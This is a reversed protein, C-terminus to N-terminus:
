RGAGFGGIGEVVYDQPGVWERAQSQERRGWLSGETRLGLLARMEELWGEELMM